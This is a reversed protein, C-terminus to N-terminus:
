VREDKGISGPLPDSRKGTCVCPPPFFNGGSPFIKEFIKPPPSHTRKMGWRHPRNDVAPAGPSPHAAAWRGRPERSGCPPKDLPICGGNRKQDQWFLFPPHVTWLSLRKAAVKCTRAFNSYPTPTLPHRRTRSPAGVPAAPHPAFKIVSERPAPADQTPNCPRIQGVGREAREAESRAAGATASAGSRGHGYPRIGEDARKGASAPSFIQRTMSQFVCPSHDGGRGRGAPGARRTGPGNAPGPFVSVRRRIGGPCLLRGVPGGGGAFAGPGRCVAAPGPRVGSGETGGAGTLGPGM